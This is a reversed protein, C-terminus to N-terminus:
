FSFTNLTYNMSSCVFFNMSLMIKYMRIFIKKKKIKQSIGKLYQSVSAKLYKCWTCEVLTSSRTWTVHIHPEMYDKKKEKTEKSEWKLNSSQQVRKIIKQSMKQKKMLQSISIWVAVDLM